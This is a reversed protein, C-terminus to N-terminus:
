PTEGRERMLMELFFLARTAVHAEHNESTDGELFLLAHQLMHELHSWSPIRHWNRDQVNVFPDREYELAADHLVRSVRLVAKVPLGRTLYPTASQRGGQENVDVASEPATDNNM